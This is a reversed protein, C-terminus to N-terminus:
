NGIEIGLRWIQLALHAQILMTVPHAPEQAVLCNREFRLDDDYRMIPGPVPEIDLHFSQPGCDAFGTSLRMLRLNGCCRDTEKIAPCRSKPRPDAVVVVPM